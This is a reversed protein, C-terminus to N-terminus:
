SSSQLFNLNMSMSIAKGSKEKYSQKSKNLNNRWFNLLFVLDEGKNCYQFALNIM